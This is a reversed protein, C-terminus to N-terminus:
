AHDSGASESRLMRNLIDLFYANWGDPDRLLMEGILGALIHVTRITEPAFHDKAWLSPAEEPASAVAAALADQMLPAGFFAADARAADEAYAEAIQQTLARDIQLRLPRRTVSFDALLEGLREGVRLRATRLEPTDRGEHIAKLDFHFRRLLAVDQLSPTANVKPLKALTFSAGGLVVHFFDHVVDGGELAARLMPRVILQDGYVERWRLFLDAHHYAPHKLTNKFHWEPLDITAGLKVIQAYNSVFRDVHPRMYGLVQVRAAFKPMHREFLDHLVQPDVDRFLESSIVIVDARSHAVRRSLDAMQRAVAKDDGINIAHALAHHYPADAPVAYELSVTECSWAGSALAQQIATSGTKKDGIHVIIRQM